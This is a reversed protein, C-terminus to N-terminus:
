NFYIGPNNKNFKEFVSKIDARSLGTQNTLFNYDEDSLDSGYSKKAKSNFLALEQLGFSSPTELQNTAYNTAEIFKQYLPSFISGGIRCVVIWNENSHRMATAIRRLAMKAQSNSYKDLIADPNCVAINVDPNSIKVILGPPIDIGLERSEVVSYNTALIIKSSSKASSVIINSFKNNLDERLGSSENVDTAIFVSPTNDKIIKLVGDGQLKSQVSAVSLLSHKSGNESILRQYSRSHLIFPKLVLLANVITYLSGGLLALLIILIARKIKRELRPSREELRLGTRWGFRDYIVVNCLFWDM